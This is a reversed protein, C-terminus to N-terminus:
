DGSIAWGHADVRLPGDPGPLEVPADSLNLGLTLRDAPGALDIAVTENTVERVSVDASTLWPHNRRVSILRQHLEFTGRGFGALGSPHEPFPPRVADDGTPGDTKEGTFGQEDGAYISPVGPLLMLLATALPLNRPDDLRTAIRSTDHNGVFTLPRFAASFEAHRSLTWALEHLNTDNLSSWVAKWLEYETVSDVGSRAVFGVYDGHIVEALIWCEPYAARVRDVIPRWADPGAAYAADLRWGDVGKHLWHTMVDVVYDQVPPHELNLEVLDLNGEFGRPYDEVWRIWAGAESGRGGQVAARVLEHDQSLHNFVGDLLVRIGRGRAAQVLKAFDEEDGLRPDIRFHDVTDYGHTRSAFVPALLLGNAGLELVYDLWNELRPLRHEVADIASREAGLFGLPYCHWWIVSDPWGM